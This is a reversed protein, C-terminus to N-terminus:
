MPKQWSPAKQYAVKERRVENWASVKSLNFSQMRFVVATHLLAVPVDYWFDSCYFKGSLKRPFFIKKSKKKKKKTM